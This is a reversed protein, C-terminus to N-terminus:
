KVRWRRRSLWGAVAGGAAMLVLSSPMPAAVSGRVRVSGDQTTAELPNGDADGLAQISLGLASVGPALADFAVTALVFGSPQLADLEAATLLSLLFLDLQGPGIVGSSSIAEGLGEDGLLTTFVVGTPDVVAPDFGLDLDFTGLSPSTFDGLGSIVIDVSFPTGADVAISSPTVSLTLVDNAAAPGAGLLAVAMALLFFLRWTAMM